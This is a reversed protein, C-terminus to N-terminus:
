AAVRRFDPATRLLRYYRQILLREPDTAAVLEYYVAEIPELLFSEDGDYVALPPVGTRLEAPLLLGDLVCRLVVTRNEQRHHV